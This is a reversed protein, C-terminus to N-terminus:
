SATMAFKASLYEWISLVRDREAAQLTENLTPDQEEILMGLTKLGEERHRACHEEALRRNEGGAGSWFVSQRPRDFDLQASRLFLRLDTLPDIDVSLTAGRCSEVFRLKVSPNQQLETITINTFVSGDIVGKLHITVLGTAATAYAREAQHWIARAEEPTAQSGPHFVRLGELSRGGETSELSCPRPADFRLATFTVNVCPTWELQRNWAITRLRSLIEQRRRKAWEDADREWIATDPVQVLDPGVVMPLISLSLWRNSEEYTVYRWGMDAAWNTM